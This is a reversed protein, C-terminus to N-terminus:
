RWISHKETERIKLICNGWDGKDEICLQGWDEKDEIRLTKRDGKVEM